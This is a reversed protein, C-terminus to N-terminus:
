KSNKNQNSLIRKLPTYELYLSSAITPNTIKGKYTIVANALVPSNELDFTNKLIEQLLETNIKSILSSFTKPYYHSVNGVNFHIVDATTFVAKSLKIQKSETQSAFGYDSALDVFVAGKNISTIMKENFITHTPENPNNAACVVADAQRLMSFLKEYEYKFVSLTCDNIKCLQKYEDNSKVKDLDSENYDFVVVNSGLALASKILSKGAFNSGGIVFLNSNFDEIKGFVKGLGKKQYRSLYFGIVSVALQGKLKESVKFVSGEKTPQISKISIMTTNYKLLQFLYKNENIPNAYNWVIQTPSLKKLIKSSIRAIKCIVHYSSIDSMYNKKITAGASVYEHDPYGLGSGYNPQIYIEAGKSILTKIDNPILLVRQNKNKEKLLLIKM